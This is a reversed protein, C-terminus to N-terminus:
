ACFCSTFDTLFSSREFRHFLAHRFAVLLALASQSICIIPCHQPSPRVHLETRICQFVSSQHTGLFGQSHAIHCLGALTAEATLIQALNKVFVFSKIACRTMLFLADIYISFENAKDPPVCRTNSWDVVWLGVHESPASINMLPCGLGILYFIAAAAAGRRPPDLCHRSPCPRSRRHPATAPRSQRPCLRSGPGHTPPVPQPISQGSSAPRAAPQQPRGEGGDVPTPTPDAM